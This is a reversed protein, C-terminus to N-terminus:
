YYMLIMIISYLIKSDIIIVYSYICDTTNAPAPRDNHYQVQEFSMCNQSYYNSFINNM